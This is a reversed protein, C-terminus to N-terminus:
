SRKSARMGLQAAPGAGTLRRPALGLRATHGIAERADSRHGFGGGAGPASTSACCGALVRAFPPFSGLPDLRDVARAPAAGVAGSAM